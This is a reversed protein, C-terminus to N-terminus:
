AHQRAHLAHLQRRQCHDTDVGAAGHLAPQGVLRCGGHCPGHWGGAALGAYDLVPDDDDPRALLSSGFNGRFLDPQGFLRFHFLAADGRLIAIAIALIESISLLLLSNWLRPWLIELVPRMNTRSFGLDGQLAAALWNWYRFIVPQDLGYLAKLRAADAPTLDPDSQVMIDIPDGPMLGILGYVAFSILLLVVLSETLRIVAFRFM